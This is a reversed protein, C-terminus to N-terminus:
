GPFKDWGPISGPGAAHCARMSGGAGCCHITTSMITIITMTTATMVTITMMVTTTIIISMMMTKTIIKLHEIVHYDHNHHQHKM